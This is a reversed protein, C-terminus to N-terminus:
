RYRKHHFESALVILRRICYQAVSNCYATRDIRPIGNDEGHSLRRSPKQTLVSTKLANGSIEDNQTNLNQNQWNTGINTSGHRRKDSKKDSKKSVPEANDAIGCDDTGTKRVSEPKRFFDPLSNIAAATSGRYSHSYRDLTLTITSHRMLVQADKPHVGAAALMSGFSHRLSHFVVQGEGSDEVSLFDSDKRGQPEDQVWASRANIMDKRLMRCVSFESPMKFVAAGPLKGSLYDRLIEVTSDRLPLVAGRKNKTTAARVNLVHGALDIDSVVLRRLEKSRLGSEVALLYLVARDRGYMGFSKGAKEVWALLVAIEEASLARRKIGDDPDVKLSLHEIPNEGIRRERKLWNFFSKAAALYCKKSSGSIPGIDKKGEVTDVFKRFGDIATLIRNSSIDALTKFKCEEFIRRVREAQQKAHKELKGSALIAKEWEGVQCDLPKGGEVRGGSLLGWTRLKNLIRGPCAEIWRELKSDPLNGRLRCAVLSDVNEGLTETADQDTFGRLKRRIGKNDIFTIYWSESKEFGDGRSFTERYIKM